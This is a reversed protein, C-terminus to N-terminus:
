IRYTLSAHTCPHSLPDSLAHSRSHTPLHTPSLPLPYAFHISHSAKILDDYTTVLIHFKLLRRSRGKYYWEYERIVDRM